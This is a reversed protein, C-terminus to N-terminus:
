ANVIFHLSALDRDSSADTLELIWENPKTQSAETKVTTGPAIPSAFKASKVELLQLHPADLEDKLFTFAHQVTAVAPLIPQGPFHGNFYPDNRGASWSGVIKKSETNV